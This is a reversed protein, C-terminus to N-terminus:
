RCQLGARFAVRILEGVSAIQGLSVNRSEVLADLAAGFAATDDDGDMAARELATLVPAINRKMADIENLRGM